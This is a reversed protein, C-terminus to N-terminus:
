RAVDSRRPDVVIMKMGRKRGANLRASPSSQPMNLQHSAAPNTGVFMVCDAREVDLLNVPVLGGFLRNGAITLSPSDITFSTYMRNSGLADLWRQVFWPGGASTRHGGCGTYVAVSDPGYREVIEGLREAVEDLAQSKSIQSWVGGEQKEPALLRDPHHIREVEARGKQCTYGKTVENERDGRVAVVRGARERQHDGVGVEVDIELGCFVHCFRCFSKKTEIM